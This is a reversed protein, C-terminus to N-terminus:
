GPRTPHTPPPPLPQPRGMHVRGHRYPEREYDVQLRRNNMLWSRTREV